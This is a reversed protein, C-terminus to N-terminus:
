KKMANPSVNEEFNMHAQISPKNTKLINDYTARKLALRDIRAQNPQIKWFKLYIKTFKM